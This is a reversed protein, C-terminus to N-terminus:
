EHTLDLLEVNYSDFKLSFTPIKDPVAGSYNTAVTLHPIFTEYDYTAGMDIIENFIKHLEASNLKLVLSNDDFLDWEVAKAVIPLSPNMKELGPIYKRSYALTTHYTKSDVPSNINNKLIWKYLKNSSATSLKVCAYSGKEKKEFEALYEKFKKM